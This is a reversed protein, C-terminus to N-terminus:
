GARGQESVTIGTRLKFLGPLKTAVVFIKRSIKMLRLVSPILYFHLTVLTADSGLLPVEQLNYKGEQSLNTDQKSDNSHKMFNQQVDLSKWAAAGALLV